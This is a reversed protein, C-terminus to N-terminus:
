WEVEVTSIKNTKKNSFKVNGYKRGYIFVDRTVKVDQICYDIVKQIEGRKFWELSQLGSASKGVNLTAKAVSDLSVRYGLKKYLIELMDVTPLSSLSFDSIYPQMVTYDFRKINFGVILDATKLKKILKSVDEERFHEFKKERSSYIVVIAIRMRDINSWGGVEEASFRTELDLYVINEEDTLDKDSNEIYTIIQKIHICDRGAVYEKCNCKHRDFLDEALVVQYKEEPSNEVSYKNPGTEKINFKEKRENM